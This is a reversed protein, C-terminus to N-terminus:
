LSSVIILGFFVIFLTLVAGVIRYQLLLRRDSASEETILTSFQAHILIAKRPAFVCLLTYALGCLLIVASAVIAAITPIKM